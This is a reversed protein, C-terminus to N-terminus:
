QQNKDLRDLFSPMKILIKYPCRLEFDDVILFLNLIIGAWPIRDFNFNHVDLKVM